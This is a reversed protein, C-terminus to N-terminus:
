CVLPGEVHEALRRVREPHCDLVRGGIGIAAVWQGLLRHSLHPTENSGLLGDLRISPANEHQRSSNAPEERHILTTASGAIMANACRCLGSQVHM